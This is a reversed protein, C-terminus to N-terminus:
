EFLKSVTKATFDVIPIVRAYNIRKPGIVGIAGLTKIKKSELTKKGKLPAIIMSCGSHDFLKNNSGIFVHVGSESVARDILHYTIKTKELEEFLSNIKEIDDEASLNNYINDKGTLIFTPNNEDGAKVALGAKIIKKSVQHIERKHKKLDEQISKKAELLTLGTIKSNLYNSAEMLNTLPTGNPIDILRNEVIGMSNVMIALARNGDIPVFEIHKIPRELNPASVLSVCKSLGSLADSTDSLIEKLSKGSGACLSEINEKETSAVEGFQLLGDVFFRLGSDTPLRGSSVHPSKLLDLNELQAMVNRITASALSPSIKDSIEKSAVPQGTELYSEVVHQLIKRSRNDLTSLSLNKKLNSKM